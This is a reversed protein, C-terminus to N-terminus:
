CSHVVWPEQLPKLAAKYFELSREVIDFATLGARLLSMINRDITDLAM